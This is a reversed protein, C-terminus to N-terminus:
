NNSGEFLRIKLVQNNFQVPQTSTHLQARVTVNQEKEISPRGLSAQIISIDKTNFVVKNREKLTPLCIPDLSLAVPAVEALVLSVEKRSLSHPVKIIGTEESTSTIELVTEVIIDSEMENVIAGDEAVLLPSTSTEKLLGFPLITFGILLCAALVWWNSSMKKTGLRHDLTAWLAADDFAFGLDKQSVNDLKESLKNRVM